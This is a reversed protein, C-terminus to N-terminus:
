EWKDAKVRESRGERRSGFGVKYENLPNIGLLDCPDFRPPVRQRRQRQAHHSLDHPAYIDGHNFRVQSNILEDMDVRKDAPEDAGTVTESRQFSELTSTLKNILIASSESRSNIANAFNIVNNTKPDALTPNTSPLHIIPSPLPVM